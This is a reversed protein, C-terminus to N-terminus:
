SGTHLRQHEAKTLVRLNSPDNNLANGDLHHIETGDGRRVRGEREFRSRNAYREATIYSHPAGYCAYELKYDRPLKVGLSSASKLARRYGIWEKVACARGRHRDAQYKDRRM